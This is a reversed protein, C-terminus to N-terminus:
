QQFQVLGNVSGATIGRLAFRIYESGGLEAILFGGYGVTPSVPVVLQPEDDILGLGWKWALAIAYPHQEVTVTGAVREAAEILGLSTGSLSGMTCTVSAIRRQRYQVSAGPGPSPLADILAVDVVHVGGASGLPTYDAFVWRDVPIADAPLGPMIRDTLAFEDVSVNAARIRQPASKHVVQARPDTM